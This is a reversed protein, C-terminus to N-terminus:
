PVPTAEEAPEEEAAPTTEEGAPTEEAPTEGIPTEEVVPTEGPTGGDLSLACRFGLWSASKDFETSLRHGLRVYITLDELYSAGRVVREPTSLPQSGLRAPNLTGLGAYDPFYWDQVWESVNGAMGLVGFFSLDQAFAQVAATGGLGAAATNARGPEWDDGWPFTYSTATAPDWRAAKEWEAETPLRKGAWECYQTAQDWNVYVVPHQAFASDAYFEQNEPPSCVEAAVCAAYNLNTVETVDIYYGSLTVEEAPTADLFYDQRCRPDGDEESEEICTLVYDQIEQETVGRMFPGEEVLVMGPPAVPEPTATPASTPEVVEVPTSPPESPQAATVDATEGATEEAAAPTEAEAQAGFPLSWNMPNVLVIVMAVTLLVAFTAVVLLTGLTIGRRPPNVEPQAPPQYIRPAYGPAAPPQGWGAGQQPVPPLGTAPDVAYGPPPTYGYDGPQAPPAGYQPAPQVPTQYPPAQMPPQQPPPPQVFQADPPAPQAPQTAGPPIPPEAPLPTGAQAPPQPPLATGMTGAEEPTVPPRAVTDSLSDPPPAQEQRPRVLTQAEASVFSPARGNWTHPVDVELPPAGDRVLATIVTINDKGGRDNAKQVLTESAARPSAASTIAGIEDAHLYRTLGDTCLVLVDDPRLRRDYLDIVVTEESGLMRLVVDRRPHDRAEEPMIAGEDLLQQVLTHDRTIQEVRNERVLYVRSSGVAAVHLQEGRIVAAVLGAGMKVLEPQRSAYEFLDANAAQVAERLRLGLDPELQNNYYTHMVKEAAYRAAIQGRESGGVGDVVVYLSGSYRATEPDPPHYVLVYDENEPQSQGADTVPWTDITLNSPSM